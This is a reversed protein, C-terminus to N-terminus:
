EGGTKQFPKYPEKSPEYFKGFFELLNLRIAHINPSFASVLINVSHLLLGVIIGLFGLKSALSNVADAFIAGALGLAMIRIYSAVSTILSISEVLGLAKGGKMAYYLGVVIALGAIVGIVTKAGALGPGAFVPIATIGFLLLGGLFGLMGGKEYVHSMHKTRLGNVIGLVLGFVVQILGMLLSLGIMFLALSTAVRHIPLTFASALGFMGKPIVTLPIWYPVLLNGFFEGYVFGWLIAMTTAPGLVGTAMQIFPKDKYKMRLWIVLGLMVAGYGIDGVIMGFIIPYFVALITTPDLTGYAPLGGRFNLLMQFPEVEKRNELQVPTESFDHEDIELQSVIVDEGFAARLTKRLDAIDSVPVWGSIVFAYETQGFKPIASIEDIRDSLVDRITALRLYWKSSMGELERGVDELQQPLSKQREKVTDYAQDFAMGQLDSPLRIQNVNEIALFKHVPESYTKNFVIIAATTDEDVDTSVIECQKKTIVDLEDKLQDLASKYKREVLLAVSDFAGTTVIQKALPQIKQLIPEYRALLALESEIETQSIALGSTKDEVEDVVHAIEDSLEKSDLKWLRLYEKQRRAEDVQTGPLHLAKIVARVRILLEGMREREVAQSQEVEMVDLRVENSEIKQSLDEIHIKGHEHLLDVVDFFKGKPGIIEVKAMPVLV